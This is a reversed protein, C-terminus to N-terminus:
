QIRSIAIFYVVFWLVTFLSILAIFFAIAGKPKFTKEDFHDNNETM